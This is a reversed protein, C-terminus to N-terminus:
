LFEHSHIHYGFAPNGRVSEEGQCHFGAREFSHRSALNEPKIWAQVTQWRPDDFLAAVALRLLRPAYGKGRHTPAVSVDVTATELEGEFHVQGVPIGGADLGIFIACDKDAM